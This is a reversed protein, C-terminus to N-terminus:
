SGSGETASAAEVAGPKITMRVGKDFTIMAGNNEMTLSQAVLTAQSTDIRVQQDSTLKGSKIDIHASELEATMGAETTVTFPQDLSLFEEDRHYIGSIASLVATESGTFPFDAVIDELRIVSQASIEQIARVAKVSYSKDDGLQGTMIPNSMVIKGDSIAASDISAGEPLARSIMTSGVFAIVAFVTATPFVLKLLKVRKSHRIAAAYDSRSRHRRDPIARASSM